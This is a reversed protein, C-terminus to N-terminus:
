LGRSGPAGETRLYQDLGQECRTTRRAQATALLEDNVALTTRSAPPHWLHYCLARGRLDLRRRGLNLLRVALESDERGWGVFAENYGNALVLDTRWIGLNCGRIGRLDGRMRMLPVPWRFAHKLGHLQGRWVARRRDSLFDGHGFWKAAAEEVLARHGQVFAGSRAQGRHDAVFEPHPVTDGDLFVIYASLARAIAQNLIRARRFGEHPQWVQATKLRQKAAWNAFVQRTEPESGDDALLVEDPAASQRGVARLVRDLYEPQNYTNIILAVAPEHDPPM